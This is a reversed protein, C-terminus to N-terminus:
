LPNNYSRVVPRVLEICTRGVPQSLVSQTCISPLGPSYCGQYQTGKGKRSWRSMYTGSVFLRKLDAPIVTDWKKRWAAMKGQLMEIGNLWDSHMKGRFLRTCIISHAISCPVHERRANYQSEPITQTKRLHYIQQTIDTIYTYVAVHPEYTQTHVRLPLCVIIV